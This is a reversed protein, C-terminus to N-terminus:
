PPQVKFFVVNRRVSKSASETSKLAQREESDSSLPVFSEAVTNVSAAMVASAMIRVMAALEGVGLGTV